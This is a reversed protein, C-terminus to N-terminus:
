VVHTHYQQQVIGLSVLYNFNRKDANCSISWYTLNNLYFFKVTRVFMQPLRVILAHLILQTHMHTDVLKVRATKEVTIFVCMHIHMSDTWLKLETKTNSM